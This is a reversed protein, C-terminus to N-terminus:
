EQPKLGSVIFQPAVRVRIPAPLWMTRSLGRYVLYTLNRMLPTKTLFPIGHFFGKWPEIGDRKISTLGQAELLLSLSKASIKRVPPQNTFGPHGLRRKIKLLPNATNQVILTLRRGPKLVRVMEQLARNLEADDLFYELVAQNFVFDYSNDPHQISLLNGTEFTVQGPTPRVRERILTAIEVAKVSYDLGWVQYGLFALTMSYLGLGCGAELVIPNTLKFIESLSLLKNVWESKSFKQFYPLDLSSVDAWTINGAEYFTSWAEGSTSPSEAM